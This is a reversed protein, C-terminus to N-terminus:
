ESYPSVSILIVDKPINRQQRIDPLIHLLAIIKIREVASGAASSVFGIKLFNLFHRLKSTREYAVWRSEGHMNDFDKRERVFGTYQTCCYTMMDISISAGTANGDLGKIGCCDAVYTNAM